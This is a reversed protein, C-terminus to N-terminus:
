ECPFVPHGGITEAAGAGFPKTKHHTTVIGFRELGSPRLNVSQRAPVRSALEPCQGRPASTVRERREYEPAALLNWVRCPMVDNVAVIVLFHGVVVDAFTKAFGFQRFQYGPELRRVEVGDNDESGRGTRAAVLQQCEAPGIQVYLIFFKPNFPRQLLGLLVANPALTGLGLAAPAGDVDVIGDDRLQQRFSLTVQANLRTDRIPDLNIEAQDAQWGTRQHERRNGLRALLEIKYLRAIGAVEALLESPAGPLEVEAFGAEVVRATDVGGGQEVGAIGDM